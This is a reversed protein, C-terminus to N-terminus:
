PKPNKRQDVKQAWYAKSEPYILSEELAIHGACLELFVEANHLFEATDFWNNGSAIARLQPGLEIWNEEIFGHDQQLSRVSAVLDADGQNLLPPFVHAEEQAHHDRATSSFFSEIEGAMHKDSDTLSGAEAQKVLAALNVLHVHIQQHCADLAKFDALGPDAKV